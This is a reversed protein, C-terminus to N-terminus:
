TTKLIKKIQLWLRQECQETYRNKEQHIAVVFRQDDLSLSDMTPSNLGSITEELDLYKKAIQVYETDGIDDNVRMEVELEYICAKCPSGFDRTARKEPTCDFAHSEREYPDYKERTLLTLMTATVLHQIEIIKDTM